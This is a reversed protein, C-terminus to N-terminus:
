TARSFISLRSYLIISKEEIVSAYANAMNKRRKRSQHISVIEHILRSIELMANHCATFKQFYKSDKDNENSLM